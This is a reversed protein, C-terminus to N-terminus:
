SRTHRHTHSEGGNALSNELVKENSQEMVERMCQCTSRIVSLWFVTPIDDDDDDNNKNNLSRVDELSQTRVPECTM